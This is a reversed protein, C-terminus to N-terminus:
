NRTVTQLVDETALAAFFFGLLEFHWFLFEECIATIVYELLDLYGLESLEVFPRAEFKVIEFLILM